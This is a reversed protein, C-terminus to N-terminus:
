VPVLMQERQYQWQLREFENRFALMTMFSMMMVENYARNHNGFNSEMIGSLVYYLAMAVFVLAAPYGRNYLKIAGNMVFLSSLMFFFLGIYGVDFFVQFFFNHTVILDYGYEYEEDGFWQTYNKSVGATSQGHEGWGFFHQMKFQEVEEICEAWIYTRNSMTTVNEADGTRSVDSLFSAGAILQLVAMILFPLFPVALVFVRLFGTARTFYTVAVLGSTMVVMLATGRSDAILLFIVAFFLIALMWINRKFSKKVVYWYVGAMIFTVGAWIAITNPHMSATYPVMKKMLRIGLLKLLVNLEGGRQLPTNPDKYGTFYLFCYLTVVVGFVILLRFVVTNFTHEFEHGKRVERSVWLFVLLNLMIVSFCDNFMGVSTATTYATRLLSIIFLGLFVLWTFLQHGIVIKPFYIKGQGIVMYKLVGILLLTNPLFKFLLAVQGEYFVNKLNQLLFYGLVFEM